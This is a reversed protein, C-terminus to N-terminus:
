AETFESLRGVLNDIKSRVLAKIEENQKEVAEKEQLQSALQDYRRQLEANEAELRKCMEIIKELKNELIEFQELVNERNM